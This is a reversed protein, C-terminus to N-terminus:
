KISFDLYYTEDDIKYFDLDTRGYKRLDELTVRAGNPLGLRNRIYEGILSNNHPTHIAKGYKEQARTCVITKGDDTLVTFHVTKPPFFDTKYIESPLKIYAQNPDRKYEPRQGWNLGSRQPLSGDKALLSITAHELGSYDIKPIAEKKAIKKKIKEDAYLCIFDLADEHDCYITDDIISRYYEFAKEPSCQMMLERRRALKMASQTYNASGLFAYKPVLGTCWIYLKSHVPLGKFVYSCKFRERFDDQMLKCFGKHNSLSIGDSITMGCILEVRIGKIENLHHFAMASTSYGSVICLNDLSKDDLKPKLLVNHYLNKLLM